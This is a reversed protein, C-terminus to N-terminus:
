SCNGGVKVQIIGFRAGRFKPPRADNRRIRNSSEPETRGWGKESGGVIVRTSEEYWTERSGKQGVVSKPLMFKTADVVPLSVPEIVVGTLGLPARLKPPMVANVTTSEEAVVQTAVVMPPLVFPTIPLIEAEVMTRVSKPAELLPLVSKPAAVAVLAREIAVTTLMASRPMLHAVSKPPMVVNVATVEEAVWQTTASKPSLAVLAFPVDGAGVM